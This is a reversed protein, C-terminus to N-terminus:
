KANYSVRSNRIGEKENEDPFHKKVKWYQDAIQARREWKKSTHYGQFHLCACISKTDSYSKCKSYRRKNLVRVWTEVGEQFTKNRQFACKRDGCDDWGLIKSKCGKCKVGGLNNGERLLRSETQDKSNINEITFYAYFISIPFGTKKHMEKFLDHYHYSYYVRTQMRHDLHEFGTFGEEIMLDALQTSDLDKVRYAPPQNYDVLSYEITEVPEFPIATLSAPAIAMKEPELVKFNNAKIVIPQDTKVPVLGIVICLIGLLLFLHKKVFIM